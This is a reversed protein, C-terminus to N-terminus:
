ADQAAPDERDLEGRAAPAAGGSSGERVGAVVEARAEAALPYPMSVTVRDVLDRCRRAAELGAARPAGVVAFTGLVEDDLLAAM